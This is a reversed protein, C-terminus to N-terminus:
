AHRIRINPPQATARYSRCVRVHLNKWKEGEALDRMVQVAHFDPTPLAQTHWAAYLEYLSDDFYICIYDQMLSYHSRSQRSRSSLLKAYGWMESALRGKKPM